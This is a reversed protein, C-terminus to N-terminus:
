TRMHPSARLPAAAFSSVKYHGLLAPSDDPAYLAPHLNSEAKLEAQLKMKTWIMVVGHFVGQLIFSLQCYYTVVCEASILASLRPEPLNWFTALLMVLHGPEDDVDCLWALM